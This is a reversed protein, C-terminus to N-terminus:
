RTAARPTPAYENDVIREDAVVAVATLRAAVDAGGEEVAGVTDVEDRAQQARDADSPGRDAIGVFRGPPLPSWCVLRSFGNKPERGGSTAVNVNLPLSTVITLLWKVEFPPLPASIPEFWGGSLALSTCRAACACATLLKTSLRSAASAFALTM